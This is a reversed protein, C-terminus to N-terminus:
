GQNFYKNYNAKKGVETLNAYLLTSNLDHHGLLQRIVEISAGRNLMHTAFSHRLKHPYIVNMTGTRKAIRKLIYRVQDISMRHPVRETVILAPDKDRRGEIYKLLWEKCTDTFYVTRPYGGKGMIRIRNEQWDIDDKNLPTLEGIRCGTSYLLEFIVRELDSKCANRLIEIEEETLYKPTRDKVKPEKISVSINNQIHGEEAAWKFFSRIFRVRHGISAVKLDGRSVLYDKLNDITVEAINKGGLYECLLRAQLKYSKLTHPSYRAISKDRMYNPWLMSINM